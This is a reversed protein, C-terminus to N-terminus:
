RKAKATDRAREYARLQKYSMQAPDTVVGTTGEGSLPTIPAPAGGRPSAEAVPKDAAGAVNSPKTLKEELKGLEALGLIPKLKAIRIAEVPNKALYYRLEEGKDAEWLYNLIHQPQKDAETGQVSQFVDKYDPHLKSLEDIRANHRSEAATREATAREEAQRKQEDKVAKAAEHRALDRSFDKWLFEGKENKYKPDTEVPEKDEPVEVKPQAARLAQLEQELQAARAAELKRENFQQEAFRESEAADALAERMRRHKSLLRRRTKESLEADTPSLGSEDETPDEVEAQADTKPADAKSEAPKEVKQELKEAPKETKADSPKEGPKVVEYKGTEVFEQLTGPTIVKPM